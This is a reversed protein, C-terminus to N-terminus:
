LALYQRGDGLIRCFLKGFYPSHEESFSGLEFERALLIIVCGRSLQHLGRGCGFDFTHAGRTQYSVM